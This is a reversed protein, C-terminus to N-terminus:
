EDLTTGAVYVFLNGSSSMGFDARGDKTVDCSARDPAPAGLTGRPTEFVAFAAFAAFPVAPLM